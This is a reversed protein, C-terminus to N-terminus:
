IKGLKKLIAFALIIIIIIALIMLATSQELPSSAALGTVPLVPLSNEAINNEPTNTTGAPNDQNAPETNAPPQAPQTNSNNTITGTSGSGGNSASSPATGSTQLGQISIAVSKKMQINIQVQGPKGEQVAYMSGSISAPGKYNSPVSAIVNTYIIKNPELQVTSPFSLYQAAEGEARLKVTITENGDNVLGYQASDSNGTTVSFSLSGAVQQLAFSYPIVILVLLIVVLKEM